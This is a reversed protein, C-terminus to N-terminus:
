RSVPGSREEEVQSSRLLLYGAFGVAVGPMVGLVLCVWGHKVSRSKAEFGVWIALILWCAIVDASYGSAYPNVFGAAFAGVIDPDEILPPVVVSCFLATFGAAVGIIGVRFLREAMGEAVGPDVSM